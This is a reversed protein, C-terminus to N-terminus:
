PDSCSDSEPFRHWPKGFFVQSPFFLLSFLYFCARVKRFTFSPPLLTPPSAENWFLSDYLLLCGGPVFPQGGANLVCVAQYVPNRALTNRVWVQPKQWPVVPVKPSWKSLLMQVEPVSHEKPNACTLLSPSALCVWGRQGPERMQRKTGKGSGLSVATSHQYCTSPSPFLCLCLGFLECHCLSNWVSPVWLYWHGSRQECLLVHAMCQKPKWFNWSPGNTNASAHVLPCLWKRFNTTKKHFLYCWVVLVHRRWCGKPGPSCSSGWMVALCEMSQKKRQRWLSHSFRVLINLCPFQSVPSAKGSTM